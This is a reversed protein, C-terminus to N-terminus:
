LVFNAWPNSNSFGSGPSTIIQGYHNGSGLDYDAPTNTVDVAIRSEGGSSAGILDYIEELTKMTPAVPGVPPDLDGASSLWAGAAIIAACVPLTVHLLQKSM